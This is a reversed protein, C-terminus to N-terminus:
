RQGLLGTAAPPGKNSSASPLSSLCTGVLHLEAECGTAAPDSGAGQIRGRRAAFPLHHHCIHKSSIGLLMRRNLLVHSQQSRPLLEPIRQRVNSLM